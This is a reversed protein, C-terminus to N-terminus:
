TGIAPHSSELALRMFTNGKVIIRVNCRPLFLLFMLYTLTQIHQMVDRRQLSNGKATTKQPDLQPSRSTGGAGSIWLFGSRNLMKRCLPHDEVMRSAKPLATM